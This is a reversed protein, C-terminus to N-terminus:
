KQNGRIKECFNKLMIFINLMIFNNKPEGEMNGSLFEKANYFNKANYFKNKTGGTDSSLFKKLMIFINKPEGGYQQEFIKKANYFNNERMLFKKGLMIFKKLMIFFKM